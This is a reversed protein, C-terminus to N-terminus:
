PRNEAPTILAVFVHMPIQRNRLLESLIFKTPQDPGEAELNSPKWNPFPLFDELEAHGGVGSDAAEREVVGLACHHEFLRLGKAKELGTLIPQCM